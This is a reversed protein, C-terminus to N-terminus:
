TTRRFLLRRRWCSLRCCSICRKCPTFFGAPTSAEVTVLKETVDIRYGETGLATDRTPLFQLQNGPLAMRNINRVAVGLRSSRNIQNAFSDAIAKLQPQALPVMITTTRSIVFEGARSDLQAPRPVLTYRNLTQGFTTLLAAWVFLLLFSLTRM